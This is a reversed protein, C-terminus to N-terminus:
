LLGVLEPLADKINVKSAETVISNSVVVEEAGTSILKALAGDLFLGHTAAVMIREAGQKKLIDIAKIMTGGGAIMDDLIIVDRGKVDLTKEARMEAVQREAYEGLPAYGGRVKTMASGGEEEVMYKAGLDPAVVIPEKLRKKMYELLSHSMSRNVIPLGGYRFSGVKKLFHCDLTLLEDCGAQKILTCIIEASKAEGKVFVKDQRAYPVYPLVVIVKGAYERLTELILFLQLLSRDQEPYCRHLVYITKGTYQEVDLVRVYNEGDKFQKMEINPKGLDRCNPSILLAREEGMFMDRM